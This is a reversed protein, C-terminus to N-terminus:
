SYMMEEDLIVRGNQGSDTTTGPDTPGVANPASGTPTELLTDGNAHPPMEEWERIDNATAWGGQRADKYARMRNVFDAREMEALLFKGFIGSVGFLDKDAAFAREIRKLRPMVYFKLMRAVWANEDRPQNGSQAQSLELLEKPWRWIRCAEETGMNKAEIYQADALSMTLQKVDIAGWLAGAGFQKGGGKHRANHAKILDQAHEANKAGTFWFPPVASNRFYDGEFQQMALQSGLANRHMSILSVGCVGGPSPCFGRIHLFDDSTRGKLYEGNGNYIDFLKQGSVRDRYIRVRSPDLVVLAEVQTRSKVKQIVCNQFGELSHEVDFFFQYTGTGEADPDEHLLQWQWTKDAKRRPKDYYIMFPLAGIVEAPSRIVNSVAPLGYASDTTVAVGASSIAAQGPQPVKWSEGWEQSSRLEMDGQRTRIIM